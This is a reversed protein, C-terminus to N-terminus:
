NFYLHVATLLPKHAPGQFERNACSILCDISQLLETSCPHFGSPGGSSCAGRGAPGQTDQKERTWGLLQLLALSLTKTRNIGFHHRSTHVSVNLSSHSSGDAAPLLSPTHGLPSLPTALSRCGRTGRPSEERSCRSHASSKSPGVHVHLHPPSQTLRQKGFHKSIM